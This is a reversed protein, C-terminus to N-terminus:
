KKPFSFPHKNLHREIADASLFKGLQTVAAQFGRPETVVHMVETALKIGSRYLLEIKASVVKIGHRHHPRGSSRDM